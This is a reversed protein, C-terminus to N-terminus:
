DNSIDYALLANGHRVYMVGKDIFPQALHERSGKDIKFSSILEMKSGALNILSM